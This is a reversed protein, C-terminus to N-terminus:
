GKSKNKNGKPRGRKRPPFIVNALYKATAVFPKQAFSIVPGFILWSLSMIVLVPMMMPWFWAVLIRSSEDWVRRNELATYIFIALFIWILIGVASWFLFELVSM